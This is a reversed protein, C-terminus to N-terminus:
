SLLRVRAVIPYHDSAADAPPRHIVEADEVVFEPSTFIYDIRLQAGQTAHPRHLPTPITHVRRDRPMTDALGRARISAILQRDLMRRALEQPRALYPQMQAILTAEDYPDEDSLANFDGLLLYPARRSDLLEVFGETRATESVHPSPHVVDVWIVTGDCDVSCRLASTTVGGGSDGLPLTEASLIPWRSLLCHGFDGEFGGVACHPLGFLGEYDPRMMRHRPLCYGAETIALLDPAVARVVERAAAQREPRARLSPGEREHFAYLVNYSMVTLRM